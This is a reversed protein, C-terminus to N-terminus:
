TRIRPSFSSIIGNDLSKVILIIGPDQNLAKALDFLHAPNNVNSLCLKLVNKLKEQVVKREENEKEDDASSADEFHQTHLFSYAACTYNCTTQVRKKINTELENRMDLAGGLILQAARSQLVSFQTTNELEAFHPWPPLAELEAELKQMQESKEDSADKKKKKDLKLM